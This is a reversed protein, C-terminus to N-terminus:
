LVGRGGRLSVFLQKTQGTAYCAWLEGDYSPQCGLVHGDPKLCLREDVQAAWLGWTFTGIRVLIPELIPPAGFVGLITDNSKVWLWLALQLTEAAGLVHVSGSSHLEGRM